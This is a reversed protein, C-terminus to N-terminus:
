YDSIRGILMSFVGVMLLLGSGLEWMVIDRLLEKYNGPGDFTALTLFSRAYAEANTFTVATDPNLMQQYLGQFGWLIGFFLALFVAPAMLRTPTTWRAVQRLGDLIPYNSDSRLAAALLVVCIYGNAVYIAPKPPLLLACGWLLALLVVDNVLSWGPSQKRTQPVHKVAGAISELLRSQQALQTSLATAKGQAATAKKTAAVISAHLACEATRIEDHPWNSTDQLLKSKLTTAAETLNKLEQSLGSFDAELTNENSM